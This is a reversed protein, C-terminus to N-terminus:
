PSPVSGSPGLQIEEGVVRVPWTRIKVSPDYVCEGTRVDFPWAHQPCYIMFQYMDGESLIGARHPCKDEIAYFQGAVRLIVVPQGEMLVVMRGREDLDSLLGVPTYPGSPQREV